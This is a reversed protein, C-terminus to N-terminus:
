GAQRKLEKARDAVEQSDAAPQSVIDESDSSGSVGKNSDSDQNSALQLLNKPNYSNAKSRKSSSGASSGIIENEKGERKGSENQAEKSEMKRKASGSQPAVQEQSEEAEKFVMEKLVADIRSMLESEVHLTSGTREGLGFSLMM